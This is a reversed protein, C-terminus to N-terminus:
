IYHLWITSIPVFVFFCLKIIKWVRIILQNTVCKKENYEVVQRNQCYTNCIATWLILVICCRIYNVPKSIFYYELRHCCAVFIIFLNVHDNNITETKKLYCYCPRENCCKYLNHPGRSTIVSLSSGYDNLFILNLLEIQGWYSSIWDFCQTEM